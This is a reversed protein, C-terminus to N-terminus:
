TEKEHLMPRRITESGELAMFINAQQRLLAEQKPSILLDIVSFGTRESPRLNALIQQTFSSLEWPNDVIM